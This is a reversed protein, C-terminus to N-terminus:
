LIIVRKPAKSNRGKLEISENELPNSLPTIIENNTNIINSNPINITMFNSNYVYNMNFSFKKTLSNLIQFKKLFQLGKFM